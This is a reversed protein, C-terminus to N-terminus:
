PSRADKWNRSLFGREDVTQVTAGIAPTGGSCRWQYITDHGTVFMPVNDTDRHDRCWGAVGAPDRSLNAKGCALNAGTTCLLTHGNMCRYVTTKRVLDDPMSIQFLRRAEGVLTAPLPRLTDDTAGPKCTDAPRDADTAAGQSVVAVVPLVAICAILTLTRYLM